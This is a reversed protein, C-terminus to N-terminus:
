ADGMHRRHGLMRKKKRNDMGPALHDGHRDDTPWSLDDLASSLLAILYEHTEVSKALMQDQESLPSTAAQRMLAARDRITPGGTTPLGMHSVKKRTRFIPVQPVVPAPPNPCTLALARQKELYRARYRARFRNLMDTLIVNLPHAESTPARFVIPRTNHTMQGSSMVMSKMTGCTPVTGNHSCYDFYEFLFTDVNLSSLNHHLYRVAQYIM